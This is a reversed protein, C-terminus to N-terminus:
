SIGLVSALRELGDLDWPARLAINVQEAGADVYQGVKDRVEEESGTLVGPRVFNRMRGFQPEFDEERWALGVNIATHVEGPNRGVAECHQALVGRKRAFEEPAIFPVNWWDAFRAAIRLTRKEGGGGIWIPLASQVPRPECQADTLTFHEGAFTTREDRLLGRVCAAAEELQDMRTGVSPFPIGYADYELQSWGAGLGIAARGGSLHDISTIANALVAPHRYGVSYVLSGCTVRSTNCALAAHMSVAELCDADGTMDASYFHDWISIWGFGMGEIRQWLAVLEDVTTKQLGTHVGFITM